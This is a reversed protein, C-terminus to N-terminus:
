ATIEVQKQDQFSPITGDAEMALAKERVAEFGELVTRLPKQAADLSALTPNGLCHHVYEYLRLFNLTEVDTAGAMGSALNTVILKAQSLPVKAADTQNANVMPKAREILEIAMRYLAIITDIRSPGKPRHQAYAHYGQM